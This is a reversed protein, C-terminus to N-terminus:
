PYRRTYSNQHHVHKKSSCLLLYWISRDKWWLNKKQRFAVDMEKWDQEFEYYQIANQWRRLCYWLSYIKSSFFWWITASSSHNVQMSLWSQWRDSFVWQFYNPWPGSYILSRISQCFQESRWNLWEATPVPLLSWYLNRNQSGIQNSNLEVPLVYGTGRYKPCWIWFILKREFEWYGRAESRHFSLFWGCHVGWQWHLYWKSKPNLFKRAGLFLFIRHHFFLCLLPKLSLYM